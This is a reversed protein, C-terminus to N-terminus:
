YPCLYSERSVPLLGICFRKVNINRPPPTEKALNNITVGRGDYFIRTQLVTVICINAGNMESAM